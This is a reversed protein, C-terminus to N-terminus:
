VAQKKKRCQDCKITEGVSWGKKERAWRIVHTKGTHEWSISRGCVDCRITAYIGM